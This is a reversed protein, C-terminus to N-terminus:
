HIVKIGSIRLPEFFRLKENGEKVRHHLYFRFFRLPDLLNEVKGMADM